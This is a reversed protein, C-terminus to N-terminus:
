WAPPVGSSGRLCAMEADRHDDRFGFWSASAFALFGDRSLGQEFHALM